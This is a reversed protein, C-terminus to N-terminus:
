ECLVGGYAKVSDAFVAISNITIYEAGSETNAGSSAAREKEEACDCREGYDHNAGFECTWYPRHNPRRMRIVWLDEQSGM